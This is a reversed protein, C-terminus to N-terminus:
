DRYAVIEEDSLFFFLFVGVEYSIILYYMYLAQCIYSTSM